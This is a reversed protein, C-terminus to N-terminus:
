ETHNRRNIFVCQIDSLAIDGNNCKLTIVFRCMGTNPCLSFRRAPDSGYPLSCKLDEFFYLMAISMYAGHGVVLAHVPKGLLGDDPLGALPGDM